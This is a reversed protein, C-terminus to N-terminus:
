ERTGTVVVKFERWMVHNRLCQRAVEKLKKGAMGAAPQTMMILAATIGRHLPMPVVRGSREGVLM